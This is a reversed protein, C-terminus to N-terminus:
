QGGGKAREILMADAYRYAAGAANMSGLEPEPNAALYGALAQGAFWDRLTMGPRTGTDGADHHPFAPGGNDISM